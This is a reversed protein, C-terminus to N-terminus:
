TTPRNMPAAGCADSGTVPSVTSSAVGTADRRRRAHSTTPITRLRATSTQYLYMPSNVCVMSSTVPRSPRPATTGTMSTASGSPMENKTKWPM